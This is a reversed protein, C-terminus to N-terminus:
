QKFIRKSFVEGGPMDARLVIRAANETWQQLDGGSPGEVQLMKDRSVRSPLDINRPNTDYDTGPEVSGLKAGTETYFVITINWLAVTVDKHNFFKATCRYGVRSGSAVQRWESLVCEVNGRGRLYRQVLVTAQSTMLGILGGVIAGQVAPVPVLLLAAVLAILVFAVASIAWGPL